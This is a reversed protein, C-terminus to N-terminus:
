ELPGALLALGLEADDFLVLVDEAGDGDLDGRGYGPVVRTYGNDFDTVWIWAVARADVVGSPAPVVEFRGRSGLHYGKGGVLLDDRGDDDVDSTAVDYGRREWPRTLEVRPFEVRDPLTRLDKSWTLDQGGPVIWTVLGDEDAGVTTSLALDAHGDGDFDAPVSLAYFETDAFDADEDVLSAWAADEVTLSCRPLDAPSVLYHTDAPYGSSVLVEAAGDGDVDGVPVGLVPYCLSDDHGCTRDDYLNWAAQGFLTGSATFGVDGLLIAVGETSAVQYHPSAVLDDLGDGDVDASWTTRAQGNLFRKGAYWWNVNTSNWAEVGDWESVTGSLLSGDSLRVGLEGYPDELLVDALGDGNLDGGRFIRRDDTEVASADAFAEPEVEGEGPFPGGGYRLWTSVTEEGERLYTLVVEDAGDGDLDGLWEAEADVYSGGAGLSPAVNVVLDACALRPHGFADTPSTECDGQNGTDLFGVDGTDLPALYDLIPATDPGTDRHVAASPDCTDLEGSDEGTEGTDESDVSDGTEASEGTDGSDASDAGTDDPSGTDVPDKPTPECGALMAALTLM